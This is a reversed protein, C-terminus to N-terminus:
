YRRDFIQSTLFLISCIDSFVDSVSPQGLTCVVFVCAIAGTMYMALVDIIPGLLGNTPEKYRDYIPSIFRNVPGQIM